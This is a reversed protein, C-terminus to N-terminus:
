GTYAEHIVRRLDGDLAFYVDENFRIPTPAEGRLVSFAHEATAPTVTGYGILPIGASGEPAQQWQIPLTQSGTGLGCLEGDQEIEEPQPDATAFLVRSLEDVTFQGDALPGEEVLGEPGEALVGDRVGTREDGLVSRAELLIRGAIGAAFPTAASTGGATVAYENFTEHQATWGECVDSVVHPSSGPWLTVRGNDHGGIRIASPGLRPDLQSPHGLGGAVVQAHLIGNGTAWFAPQRQAADEVAMVFSPTPCRQMRVDDRCPIPPVHWSNSQIDIWPQDATWLVADARDAEHQPCCGKVAVILADPFAGYEAGAGRSAVMTGHGGNHIFPPWTGDEAEKCSYDQSSSWAGEEVPNMLGIIRTGPVWYLTGLEVQEWVECDARLATELKDGDFTLNLAIADKPYEELYTSPHQFARPADDRFDVHYPNIGMDIFATVAFPAEVDSSTAPQGGDLGGDSSAQDGGLCGALLAAFLVLVLSGVMVLDLQRAEERVVPFSRRRKGAPHVRRFM